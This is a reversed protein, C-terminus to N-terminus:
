KRPKYNKIHKEWYWDEYERKLLAAVDKLNKVPVTRKNRLTFYYPPADELPGSTKPFIHAKRGSMLGRVLSCGIERAKRQLHLYQTM